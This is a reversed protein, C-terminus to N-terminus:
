AHVERRLSRIYFLSFFSVILAAVVAIAAGTSYQFGVFATEWSLFPLTSSATGPGGLTMVYVFDFSKFAYVVVLIALVLMTPLLTPLVIQAFRQRPKAGDVRAQELLDRPVDLLASRLVIAAFPIVVWANVLAVSTLPLWGNNLFLIPSHIIGIQELISNVIGYQSLLFKWILGNAVPPALWVSLMIITTTRALFGGKRLSLAVALGGALSVIVVIGTYIFTNGLAQTFESNHLISRYEHLGTFPWHGGITAPTVDSLSMHILQGLPYLATAGLFVAAPALFVVQWPVHLRRRAFGRTKLPTGRSNSSVEHVDEMAKRLYNMVM